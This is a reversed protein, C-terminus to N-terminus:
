HIWKSELLALQSKAQAQSKGRPSLLFEALDSYGHCSQRYKQLSLLAFLVAKFARDEEAVM